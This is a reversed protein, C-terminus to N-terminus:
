VTRFVIDRDKMLQVANAKLQDNGAFGEDLCVVRVPKCAAMARILKLTLDADLCVMMEGEGISLASKGEIELREVSTTLPIGSKLLIEYLQDESTRGERTHNVHMELQKELASVDGQPVTANWALFNSEALKFVRFGCDQKRDDDLPLKGVNEDTLTRIVRRVREKCIDVITPYDDRGTPEPLQGLIFKRDGGDEKNLEIVAHATTGSGAFFDFVIDDDSVGSLELLVRLLSVPKPFDFPSTGEFLEKMTATGEAASGATTLITRYAKARPEDSRIKEYVIYTGDERKEFLANGEDVIETMAQKGLRWRGESGDNRIPWVEEGEPGPIPFFM